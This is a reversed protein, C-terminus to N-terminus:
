YGSSNYGDDDEDKGFVAKLAQYLASPTVARALSTIKGSFGFAASNVVKM